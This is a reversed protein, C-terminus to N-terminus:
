SVWHCHAHSPASGSLGPMGYACPEVAGHSHNCAGTARAKAGAPPSVRGSHWVALAQQWEMLWNRQQIHSDLQRLTRHSLDSAEELFDPFINVKTRLCGRKTVLATLSAGADLTAANTANIRAMLEELRSVPM